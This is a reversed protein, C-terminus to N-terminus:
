WKKRAQAFIKASSHKDGLKKEKFFIGNETM